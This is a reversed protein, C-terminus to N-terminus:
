QFLNRILIQYNLVRHLRFRHLKFQDIHQLSPPSM